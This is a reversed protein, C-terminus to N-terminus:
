KTILTIRFMQNESKNHRTRAASTAILSAQDGRSSGSILIVINLFYGANSYM